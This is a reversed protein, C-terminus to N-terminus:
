KRWVTRELDRLTLHAKEQVELAEPVHQILVGAESGAFSRDGASSGM